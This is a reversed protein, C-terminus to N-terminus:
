QLSSSNLGCKSCLQILGNQLSGISAHWEMLHLFHISQLTIDVGNFSVWLEVFSVGFAVGFLFLKTGFIINDGMLIVFRVILIMGNTKTLFSSIGLAINFGQPMTFSLCLVLVVSVRTFFFFALIRKWHICYSVFRSKM